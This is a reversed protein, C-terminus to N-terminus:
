FPLEDSDANLVKKIQRRKLKFVSDQGIKLETIDFIVSEDTTYNIQLDDLLSKANINFYGSNKNIRFGNEHKEAVVVLYLCADSQDEENEGILIVKDTSLGMKKAAEQTFGLKGTKHVTARLNREQNEPTFFRIKM